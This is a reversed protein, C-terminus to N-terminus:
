EFFGPMLSLPGLCPSASDRLLGGGSAAWKPSLSIKHHAGKLRRSPGLAKTEAGKALIGQGVVCSGMEPCTGEETLLHLARGLGTDECVRGSSILPMEPRQPREIPHLIEEEGRGVGGLEAGGM